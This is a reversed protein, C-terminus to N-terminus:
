TRMSDSSRSRTSSSLAAVEAAARQGSEVAGNMYGQWRISTHEGAFLIRGAPRALADRLRPDFGADFFAYGGWAWRDHEWDIVRSELLTGPRGVWRLRRVVGDVGERDIIRKLDASAGGGALLSLVGKGHGQQENGDWIAGHARASAFASPRGNRKWFRRDFQLLVRTAAGYKLRAIAQMQDVPLAPVFEVDKATSAPIAAIVFDGTWRDLRGREEITVIVRRGRREIRRLVAGLRVPSTLHSAMITALRDNGAKLRLSGHGQGGISDAAMFDVLALLSLEEPDALFLGRLGKFRERLWSPMRCRAMWDAVSEEALRAAVAGDWRREALTYDRVLPALERGMAAFFRQGAQIGIRGSPMLGYFGWGGKLTRVMPLHCERALALLATQDHDILDAGAEAHQGSLGDRLTWVRGGVRDRAEILTVDAGDAELARAAALGALGAGAVLVRVNALSKQPKTVSTV